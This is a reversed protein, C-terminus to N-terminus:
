TFHRNILHVYQLRTGAQENEGELAVSAQAWLTDARGDWFQWENYAANLVTPTNRTGPGTGLSTAEVDAFGHFPSYCTTCAITGEKSFRADFFFLHGLQAADPNDAARNTPNPTPADPLSIFKSDSGM